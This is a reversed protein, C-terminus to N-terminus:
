KFELLGKLLVREPKHWFCNNFWIKKKLDFNLSILFIMGLNLVKKNRLGYVPIQWCKLSIKQKNESLFDLYRNTWICSSFIQWRWTSPFLKGATHLCGAKTSRLMTIEKSWQNYSDNPDSKGKGTQEKTCPIAIGATVHSASGMSRGTGTNAHRCKCEASLGRSQQWGRSDRSSRPLLTRMPRVSWFFLANRRSRLFVHNWVHVRNLCAITEHKRRQRLWGKKKSALPTKNGWLLM